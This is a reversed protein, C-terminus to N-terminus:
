LLIDTGLIVIWAFPKTYIIMKMESLSIHWSLIMKLVTMRLTHNGPGAAVADDPFKNSIYIILGWGLVVSDSVRAIQLCTRWTIRICVWTQSDSVELHTLENALAGRGPWSTCGTPSVPHKSLDKRTICTQSKEVKDCALLRTLSKISAKLEFFYVPPDHLM